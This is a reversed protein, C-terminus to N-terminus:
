IYAPINLDLRRDQKDGHRPNLTQFVSPSIDSAFVVCMLAKKVDRIPLVGEKEDKAPQAFLGFAERIENEQAPSLNHEKALKSQKSVRPM